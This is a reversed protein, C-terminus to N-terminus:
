SSEDNDNADTCQPDGAGLASYDTLGDGDNDVGDSCQPTGGGGSSSTPTATSSATDTPTATPEPPNVVAILGPQDNPEIIDPGLMLDVLGLWVWCRIDFNPEQIRVHTGEPNIALVNAEQGAQFTALNQSATYDSARCNTDQPAVVYPLKSFDIPALCDGEFDTFFSNVDSYPGYSEGVQGRSRWYYITCNQLADSETQALILADPNSYGEYTLGFGGYKVTYHLESFDEKPSVEMTMAEPICQIAPFGPYQITLIVEEFNGYGKGSDISGDEPSILLPTAIENPNCLPGTVFPIPEEFCGDPGEDPLCASWWLQSAPFLMEAPDQSGIKYKTALGFNEWLLLGGGIKDPHETYVLLEYADPICELGFLWDFEPQLDLVVDNNEPYIGVPNAFSELDNCSQLSLPPIGDGVNITSSIIPGSEGDVEVWAKIDYEGTGPINWIFEGFAYQSNGDFGEITPNIEAVIQGNIEIKILDPPGQDGIAFSVMIPYPEEPLASGDLPSDFWAQSGNDASEPPADIATQGNCALTFFALILISIFHRILIKM